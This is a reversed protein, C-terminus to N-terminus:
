LYKEWLLEKIKFELKPYSILVITAYKQSFYLSSLSEEKNLFFLIRATISYLINM